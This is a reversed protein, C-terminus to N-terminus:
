EYWSLVKLRSKWSVDALEKAGQTVEKIAESSYKIWHDENGPCDDGTLTNPSLHVMAGLVNMHIHFIKDFIMIGKFHDNKAAGHIAIRYWEADTADSHFVLIGESNKNLAIDEWETDWEDDDDDDDDGPPLEIYTVGKLPPSVPWGKGTYKNGKTGIPWGAFSTIYQSGGEGSLAIAKLTGEPLGLAQDPTTPWGGSWTANTEVVRPDEPLSPAFDYGTEGVYYTGGLYAGIKNTFTPEGTSIAFKGVGPLVNNWKKHDRGDIYMDGILDDIPGFTTMAGRVIYPVYGDAPMVVAQTGAFGTDTGSIFRSNSRVVVASDAGVVTDKFTVTSSGGSLQLNSLSSRWEISDALTRMAMEMASNNIEKAMNEQYSLTANETLENGTRMLGIVFISVLLVTGAVLIVAQNGM